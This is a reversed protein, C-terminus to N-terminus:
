NSSINKENRRITSCIRIRENKYVKWKYKINIKDYNISLLQLVIKCPKLM